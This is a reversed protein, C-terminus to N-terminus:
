QRFKFYKKATNKGHGEGMLSKIYGEVIATAFAIGSMFSIIGVAILENM